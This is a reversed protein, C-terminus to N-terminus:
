ISIYSYKKQLAGFCWLSSDWKFVFYIYYIFIIIYSKPIFLLLILPSNKILSLFFQKQKPNGFCNFENNFVYINEASDLSFRILKM